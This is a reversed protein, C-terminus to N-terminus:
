GQFVKEGCAFEPHGGRMGNGPPHNERIFAVRYALKFQFYAGHECWQVALRDDGGLLLQDVDKGALGAPDRRHHEHRPARLMSRSRMWREQQVELQTGTGRTLEAKCLGRELRNGRREFQRTMRGRAGPLCFAGTNFHQVGRLYQIDMGPIRIPVRCKCEALSSSVGQEEVLVLMQGIRGKHLRAM